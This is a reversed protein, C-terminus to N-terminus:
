NLSLKALILNTAVPNYGGEPVIIDAFKKSPEVFADHMPKVTKLYQEKVSQFSRSRENIDREIRRLIRVDDDTDVFIKIDFLERIEPIAFLLIGEVIVIPAPTILKAYDKRTHVQFDYVPQQIAKENRLHILHERLLSFELSDPHDFNTKAREDIHLHSLDKYYFDQSILVSNPFAQHIREALTTKGSGSGGAIGILLVPKAFVSLCCFVLLLRLMM